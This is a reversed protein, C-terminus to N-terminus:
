FISNLIYKHPLPSGKSLVKCNILPHAPVCSAATAMGFDNVKM